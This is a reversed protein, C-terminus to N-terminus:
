FASFLESTTLFVHNTSASVRLNSPSKMGLIKEYHNPVSHIISIIFCGVTSGSSVDDFHVSWNYSNQEAHM